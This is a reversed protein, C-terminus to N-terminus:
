QVINDRVNGCVTMFVVYVASVVCVSYMFVQYVCRCDGVCSYVHIYEADCTSHAYKQILVILHRLCIEQCLHFVQLDGLYSSVAETSATPAKYTFKGPMTTNANDESQM